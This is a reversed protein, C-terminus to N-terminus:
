PAANSFVVQLLVPKDAARHEQMNEGVAQDVSAPDAPIQSLLKRRMM